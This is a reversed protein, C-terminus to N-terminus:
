RHTNEKTGYSKSWSSSGAAKYAYKLDNGENKHYSVHLGDASDTSRVISALMRIQTLLLQKGVVLSM